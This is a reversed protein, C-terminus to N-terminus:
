TGVYGGRRQRLAYGLRTKPDFTYVHEDPSDRCKGVVFRGFQQRGEALLVLGDCIPCTTTYRKLRAYVNGAEGDIDNLELLASGEELATAWWPAVQYRPSVLDTLSETSSYTLYLAAVVMGVLCVDSMSIPGKEALMAQVVFLAAIAEGLFLTFLPLVLLIRARFSLRRGKGFVLRGLWNLKPSENILYQVPEGTSQAVPLADEELEQELLEVAELHYSVSNGLGAGQTPRVYKDLGAERSRAILEREVSDQYLKLTTPWKDALWGSPDKKAIPSIELKLQKSTMGTTENLAGGLRAKEALLLLIQGYAHGKARSPIAEVLKDLMQRIRDAEVGDIGM